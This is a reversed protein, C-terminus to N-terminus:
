RVERKWVPRVLLIGAITLLFLPYYVLVAPVFLRMDARNGTVGTMRWLMLFDAFSKLLWGGALWPWSGPLLFMWLPLLLIILNVVSVLVALWQIDAMRYRKTKSGWRIRQVVMSRLNKAPFTEVMSAGTSNFRLTRGLKRAGIMLFMDDGSVSTEEPDFSRTEQYLDKSYALNAGSCMMPRGLGFSGAASGMLALIDLREYSELFGGKRRLTTVLGAVLDSPHEELFSMHSAIFEPGLRCDADVQIIWDNKASAVGLALAAKKGSKGAPLAVCTFAKEFHPRSEMFSELQEVSGDDSHDDVFVVEWLEGPYSQLALDNVIGPLHHVENRFPVIISVPRREGPHIRGDAFSEKGIEFSYIIILLSYGYLILVFIIVAPTM